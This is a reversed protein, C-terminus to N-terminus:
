VGQTREVEKERPDQLSFNLVCIPPINSAVSRSRGSTAEPKARESIETRLRKKRRRLEVTALEVTKKEVCQARTNVWSDGRQLRVKHQDWTCMVLSAKSISRKVALHTPNAAYQVVHRNNAVFHCRSVKLLLRMFKKAYGTQSKVCKAAFM